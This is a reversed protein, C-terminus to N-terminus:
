QNQKLTCYVSQCVVYRTTESKFESNFEEVNDFPNFFTYARLIIQLGSLLILPIEDTKVIDPWFRESTLDVARDNSSLYTGTLASTWTIM